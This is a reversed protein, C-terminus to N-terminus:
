QQVKSMLLYHLGDLTKWRLTKIFKIIQQVAMELLQELIPAPCIYTPDDENSWHILYMKWRFLLTVSLSPEPHKIRRHDFIDKVILGIGLWIDEKDALPHHLKCHIPSRIRLEYHCCVMIAQRKTKQYQMRRLWLACRLSSSTSSNSNDALNVPASSRSRVM